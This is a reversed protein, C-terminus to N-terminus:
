QLPALYALDANLQHSLIALVVGSVRGNGDQYPHITNFDFYWEELRSITPITPYYNELQEMYKPVLNHPPALHLGVRVNVTRFHGAFVDKFLHSHIYNLSGREWCRHKRWKLSTIISLTNSVRQPYDGHPKNIYDAAIIGSHVWQFKPIWPTTRLFDFHTM